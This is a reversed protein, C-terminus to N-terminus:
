LGIRRRSCRLLTLGFLTGFLGPIMGLGCISGGSPRQMESSEREGDDVVRGSDDTEPPELRATAVITKSGEVTDSGGRGDSVTLAVTYTGEADFTRTVKSATSIAILTGERKFEWKFDLKDGNRDHSNEGNFVITLPVPGTSLYTGIVAVPFVNGINPKVVVTAAADTSANREDRVTLRVVYTGPESYKHTRLAGSESVGDGFSWSYTLDDGDEDQSSRADFIFETFDEYGELPDVLIVATPPHNDGDEEDPGGEGLVQIQQTARGTNPPVENDKVVLTVTYTGAAAYSHSVRVGTAPATGDGFTWDYSTIRSTPDGVPRDYSPGADVTFKEDVALARNPAITFMARPDSAGAKAESVTIVPGVWTVEGGRGDSVTARPQFKSTGEGARRKYEHIVDGDTAGPPGTVAYPGEIASGDGWDWLIKLKDGDADVSKLANFVVDLPDSGETRSVTINVKPNTNGVVLKVSATDSKGGADTVKLVATLNCPKAKTCVTGDKKSYFHSTKILVGPTGQANATQGDGFDWQYVLQNGPTELDTSGSADFEVTLGVRDGQGPIPEGGSTPNASIAAKPSNNIATIDVAAEGFRGSSNTARLVVTFTGGNVFTHSIQSGTGTSGDGFNWNFQLTEGEPDKSGRADFEVKLPPLGSLPSAAIVAIPNAKIRHDKVTVGQSVQTLGTTTFTFIDGESFATTGEKIIFSVEANKSTYLFSGCTPFSPNSRLCTFAHPYPNDLPNAPEPQTLSSNIRWETGAANLCVATWTETRATTTVSAGVDVTRLDFVGNGQNDRGAVPDTWGREPGDAGIGPVLKGFIYYLGDPISALNWNMSLRVTGTLTKKRSGILNGGIRLDKPDTTYYLSIDTGGSLDTAEFRVPYVSGVSDGGPPDIFRLSPINTPTWSLTLRVSGAGDPVVNTINLGTWRGQGTWIASPNTDLSFQTAGTSGPWVDGDDGHNGTTSCAELDGEGDAQIIYYSYPATRQQQPLADPNAGADTRMIIMGAGPLREDFGSGASWLWYREGPREANELYYYSEDNILEAPPLTISREVGPTLITKLNVPTIWDSSDKLIATPHVLGGDAMIDWGGVPCNEIDTRPDDLRDYDYLDPYGEWTHGYEHSAYRGASPFERCDQCIVLDHFFLNFSQHIETASYPDGPWDPVMYASDTNDENHIPYFSPATPFHNIDEYSGSPVLVIGSVFGQAPVVKDFNTMTWLYRGWPDDSSGSTMTPAGVIKTTPQGPHARVTAAMSNTDIWDGWDVSPDLAEVVDELLRRRNFPYNSNTGNDATYPNADASYNESLPPRVEGQDLMGDLNYDAFGIPWALRNCGQGAPCNTSDKCVVNTSTTCRGLPNIDSSPSAYPHYPGNDVSWKFGVTPSQGDRRWTLWEVMCVDGADYGKEGHIKTAYPGAAVCQGDRDLTNNPRHAGLDEGFIAPYDEGDLNVLDHRPSTVEGLRKDGERHYKSSPLDDHEVWGDFYGFEEEPLVAEDWANGGVCVMLYHDDETGCGRGDWGGRNSRFWRRNEDATGADEDFITPPNPAEADFARMRPANRAPNQDTGGPWSPPATDYWDRWWQDFWAREGVAAYRGSGPKPVSWTTRYPGADQMMKTSVLAEDDDETGVYDVFLDPSDYYGNGVRNLMSIIDGPYNNKIYAHDVPVWVSGVTAGAPEWRIPYDEFPEVVNLNGDDDSDFFDCCFRPEGCVVGEGYLRRAGLDDFCGPVDPYRSCLALPNRSLPDESDLTTNCLEDAYGETDLGPECCDRQLDPDEALCYAPRCLGVALLCDTNAACDADTACTRLPELTGVYTCSEGGTESYEGDLNWDIAPQPLDGCGITDCGRPGPGICHVNIPCDSDPDCPSVGDTCMGAVGNCSFGAPCDAHPDCTGSGDGCMAVDGCTEPSPCESILADPDCAPSGIRSGRMCHTGTPCNADTVCYGNASLSAVPYGYVNRCIMGSCVNQCGYQGHCMMDNKEDIGDWRSDGDLDLFREGPTWVNVGVANFDPMGAGRVPPPANQRNGVLDTIILAGCKDSDIETENDFSSACDCFEESAGYAFLAPVQGEIHGTVWWPSCRNSYNFRLDLYDAPAPRDPDGNPGNPEFPWPVTVWELVDGTMLVYGYSIEEWYEAVSDINPSIRDFYDKRIEEPSYLGGDPLGPVGDAGLHAKPSHALMVAFKREGARATGAVVMLTVGAALAAVFFRERKVEGNRSSARAKM